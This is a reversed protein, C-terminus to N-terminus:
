YSVRINIEAIDDRDIWTPFLNTFQPPELGAWVLLANHPERDSLRAYQLATHMAARREAQWRVEGAGTVCGPSQEDSDSDDSQEAPWWGQWLWLRDGGDMLFLAAVSM